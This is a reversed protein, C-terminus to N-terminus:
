AQRNRKEATFLSYNLGPIRPIKKSGNKFAERMAKFKISRYEAYKQGITGLVYFIESKKVSSIPKMRRRDCQHLLLENITGVSCLKNRTRGHYNDEHAMKYPLSDYGCYNLVISKRILDMQNSHSM